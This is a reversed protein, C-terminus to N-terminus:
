LPYSFNVAVMVFIYQKGQYAILNRSNNEDFKFLKRMEVFNAVLDLTQTEKKQM